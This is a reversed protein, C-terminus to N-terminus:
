LNKISKKRSYFFYILLGFITWTLFIKGSKQLITYILYSCSIITIPAVIFIAPCKFPRKLQPKKIRLILVGVAVITLAFLTGLSTIQGMIRIPTFSTILAVGVMVLICSFYPTSFKPHLKSFASPILSDRSMVFFLRSQSYMMVIMAAIMGVVAGTGVLVGGINNGNQRLSYAIPEPNDLERYNVIGTLILATLVYLLACIMISGIIGIPLNRNPNKTEEAASAVSDFGIYAFFVVATANAVGQWGFPLFQSYNDMKIHPAAIFLFVLITALKIGVLIRNVMISQKTGRVLMLGILLSIILAPLNIIGGDIPTKTLYDPIEIGAAKIIGVFYGSWGAAVTSACFTYELILSWAVLWAIFEGMTVYSYTYATGAVPVMAALETYVLGSFICVMGALLYSIAVGPGAYRAAAIGTLVFIGTGVVCGISLMILDFAGMTQKLPNKGSNEIVDNISKTRFLSKM